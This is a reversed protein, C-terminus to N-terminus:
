YDLAEQVTMDVKERHMEYAATLDAFALDIKAQDGAQAAPLFETDLTNWFKMAPEHTDQTIRKQLAPDFHTELWYTHRADYDARLKQLRQAHLSYSSPDRALLSAELYPEIVYEPPPLIDAILDSAHQTNTQIPGGMRIENIREGGIAIAVLMLVLFIATAYSVLARITM